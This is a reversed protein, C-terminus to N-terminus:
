ERLRHEAPDEASPDCEGLLDAAREERTGTTAHRAEPKDLM